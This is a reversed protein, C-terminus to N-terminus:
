FYGLARLREMIKEKDKERGAREPDGAERVPKTFPKEGISRYGKDYLPNYDVKFKKIYDWIDSERFHL